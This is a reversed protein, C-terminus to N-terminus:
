RIYATAIGVNAHSSSQPIEGLVVGGMVGFFMSSNFRGSSGGVNAAYPAYVDGACVIRAQGASGLLREHTLLAIGVEFVGLGFEDRAFAATAKRMSVGPLGAGLQSPLIFVDGPQTEDITAQLRRTRESQRLYSHGLAGRSLNYFRRVPSRELLNEVVAVAAAYSPAVHSWKPLVLWGTTYRSTDRDTELDPRCRPAALCPFFSRLAELQREVPEFDRFWKARTKSAPPLNTPTRIPM